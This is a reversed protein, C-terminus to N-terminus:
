DYLGCEAFYLDAPEPAAQIWVLRTETAIM